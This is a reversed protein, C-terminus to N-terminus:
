RQGAVVQRRGPQGPEHGHEAAVADEGAQLRQRERRLQRAVVSRRARGTAPTAARRSGRRPGPGCGARAASRRSSRRRPAAASATSRSRRRSAARRPAARRTRASSRRCSAPARARARLRARRQGPDVVVGVQLAVAVDGVLPAVLLGPELVLAPLVRPVRDRVAVPAQGAERAGGALQLAVGVVGLHAAGPQRALDPAVGAEGVPELLLRGVELAAEVAVEPDVVPSYKASARSASPLLTSASAELM